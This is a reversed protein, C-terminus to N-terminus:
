FLFDRYSGWAQKPYNYKLLLAQASALVVPITCGSSSIISPKGEGSIHVNILLPQRSEFGPPMDLQKIMESQMHTEWHALESAISSAQENLRFSIVVNLNESQVPLQETINQESPKELVSTEEIKREIIKEEKPKEKHVNEIKHEVPKVVEKKPEAKKLAAKPLKSYTIAPEPEAKPVVQKKSIQKIVPKQKPKAAIKRALRETKQRVQTPKVAPLAHKVDSIPVRKNKNGYNNIRGAVSVRAGVAKQSNAFLSLDLMRSSRAAVISFLVIFFGHFGLSVSLLVLQFKREADLEKLRWFLM